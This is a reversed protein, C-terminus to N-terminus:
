GRALNEDVIRRAFDEPHLDVDAEGALKLNQRWISRINEGLEIPFAMVKSLIDQWNGQVMYTSQLKPTMKELTRRDVDSLEGIVDLVFCELLRLLPKGEYRSTM